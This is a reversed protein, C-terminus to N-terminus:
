RREWFPFKTPWCMICLSIFFHMENEVLNLTCHNCDRFSEPTKLITFRGSKIKLTAIRLGSNLILKLLLAVVMIKQLFMEHLSLDDQYWHGGGIVRCERLFTKDGAVAQMNAHNFECTRICAPSWCQPLNYNSSNVTEYALVDDMKTM